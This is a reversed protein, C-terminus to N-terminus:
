LVAYKDDRREQGRDNLAELDPRYQQTQVKPIGRTKKGARVGRVGRGGKKQPEGSKEPGRGTLTKYLWERWVTPYYRIEQARNKCGERGRSLETQSGVRMGAEREKGGRRPQTPKEAKFANKESTLRLKATKEQIQQLRSATGV